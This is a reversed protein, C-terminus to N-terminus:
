YSKARKGETARQEEKGRNTPAPDSAKGEVPTRIQNEPKRCYYKGRNKLHTAYQTTAVVCGKTKDIM